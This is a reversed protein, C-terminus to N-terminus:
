CTSKYGLTKRLRMGLAPQLSVRPVLNLSCRTSYQCCSLRFLIALVLLGAFRYLYSLLIM